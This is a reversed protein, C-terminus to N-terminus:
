RDSYTRKSTTNHGNLYYKNNSNKNIQYGLAKFLDFYRYITRDSVNLYRAM